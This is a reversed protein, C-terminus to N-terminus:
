LGSQLFCSYWCRPQTSGLCVRQSLCWRHRLCCSVYASRLSQWGHPSLRTERSCPRWAGRSTQNICRLIHVGPPFAGLTEAPAVEFALGPVSILKSALPRASTYFTSVYLIEPQYPKRWTGWLLYTTFDM